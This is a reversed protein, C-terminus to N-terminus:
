FRWKKRKYAFCGPFNQYKYSKPSFNFKPRYKVTIRSDVIEAYDVIIVDNPRWVHSTQVKKTYTSLPSGYGYWPVLYVYRLRKNKLTWPPNCCGGKTLPIVCFRKTLHPNLYTNPNVVPNPDPDPDPVSFSYSLTLILTLTLPLIM